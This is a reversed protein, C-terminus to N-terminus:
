RKHVARDAKKKQMKVQVHSPIDDVQIDALLGLEDNVNIYHDDKSTIIFAGNVRKFNWYHLGQYNENEGENEAHNLLIWGGEKCVKVMEHLCQLPNESHDLSNRAIVLHYYNEPLSTSLEEAKCYQTKVPPYVKHKRFLEDYQDALPDTATIHLMIGPAKYGLHTIPGSGVDLVQAEPTDESLFQLYYKSFATNKDFRKRYDDPWELGKTELWKDWFAVEEATADAWSKNM